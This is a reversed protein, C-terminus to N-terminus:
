DSEKVGKIEGNALMKIYNKLAKVENLLEQLTTAQSTRIKYKAYGDLAQELTTYYGLTRYIQNNKKDKGGDKRLVLQNEDSSLIIGQELTIEM